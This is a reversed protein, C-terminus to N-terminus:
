LKQYSVSVPYAVEPIDILGHKSPMKLSRGGHSHGKPMAAMSAAPMPPPPGSSANPIPAPANKGPALRETRESAINVTFIGMEEAMDMGEMGGHGAESGGHGGEGAAGQRRSATLL